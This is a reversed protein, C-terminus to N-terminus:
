KSRMAKIADEILQIMEHSKLDQDEKLKVYQCKIESFINEIPNLQPTYAPIYRVNRDLEKIKEKVVAAHHMRANDM